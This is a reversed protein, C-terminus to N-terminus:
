SMRAAIHRHVVVAELNEHVEGEGELRAVVAVVQYPLNGEEAAVVEALTLETRRQPSNPLRPM